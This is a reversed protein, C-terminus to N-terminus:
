SESTIGGLKQSLTQTIEELTYMHVKIKSLLLVELNAQIKREYSCLNEEWVRLCSSTM